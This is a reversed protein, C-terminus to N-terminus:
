IQGAQGLLAVVRERVARSGTAFAEGRGALIAEFAAVSADLEDNIVVYDFESWHAMDAIAQGLREAIVHEPDTQRGRLRRELEVMSPPLVFVSLAEPANARIQRAGQWDIELLLDQGAALIREVQSRSTGYWNGFVEAHELLEGDALMRQFEEPAVFFYDRGPQENSRRPRTTYSISFQLDAHRALLAHVLTTKGAGSPASIVVLKGRARGSGPDDDAAASPAGM